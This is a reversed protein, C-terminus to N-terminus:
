GFRQETTKRMTKQRQEETKRQVLNDKILRKFYTTSFGFYNCIQESSWLKNIYCDNIENLQEKSLILKKAM